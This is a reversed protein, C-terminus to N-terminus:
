ANEITGHRMVGGIEIIAMTKDAGLVVSIKTNRYRDRSTRSDEEIAINMM